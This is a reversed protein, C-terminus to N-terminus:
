SVNKQKGYSCAKWKTCGLKVISFAAHADDILEVVVDIEPDNLIEKADYTFIPRM